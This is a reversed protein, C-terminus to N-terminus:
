NIIIKIYPIDIDKIMLRQDIIGFLDKRRELKM